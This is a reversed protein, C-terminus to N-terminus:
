KEPTVHFFRGRRRAFSPLAQMQELQDAVAAATPGYQRRQTLCARDSQVEDGARRWM